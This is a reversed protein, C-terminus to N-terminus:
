SVGRYAPNRDSHFLVQHSFAYKAPSTSGELEAARDQIKKIVLDIYEEGTGCLLLAYEEGKEGADFLLDTRRLTDKIATSMILSARRREDPTLSDSNILRINLKTLHFGIRRALTTLFETQEQLFAYSYSRNTQSSITTSELTNVRSMKRLTTGLWECLLKFLQITRRNLTHINMEEIKLMGFVEGNENDILPGAIIGQHDLLFEGDSVFAALIRKEGVIAKFLDSSRPFKKLYNDEAEWAYNSSLMLGEGTSLFVSFKEPSLTSAVIRNIGDIQNEPKMDELTAAAEYIKIASGLENSLRMELAQTIDKLKAFSNSIVEEKRLADDREAEIEDMEIKNRLRLGGLIISLAFWMIPRLSLHFWYDFISQSALQPPMNWAYLFVCMMIVTIIAERITYQFLILLLIVWLPHPRVEIFRNGSGLWIDLLFLLAMFLTVEFLAVIRIGLFTNKM